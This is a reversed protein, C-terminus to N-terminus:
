DGFIKPMRYSGTFTLYISNSHLFGNTGTSGLSIFNAAGEFAFSRNFAYGMGLRLGPRASQSRQEYSGPTPYNPPEVQIRGSVFNLSLGASGYIMESRKRSFTHIWDAGLQFNSFPEDVAFRLATRLYGSKKPFVLAGELALPFKTVVGTGGTTDRETKWNRDLSTALGADIHLAAVQAQMPLVALLSIFLCRPLTMAQGIRGNWHHPQNNKCSLRLEDQNRKKM